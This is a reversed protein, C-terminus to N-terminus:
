GPEKTSWNATIDESSNFKWSCGKFLLAVDEYINRFVLIKHQSKSQFIRKCRELWIHWVTCALAIRALQYVDDNPKFKAKILNAEEHLNGMSSSHMQLKLKCLTWLYHSYPCDFFLHDRTECGSGCLACSTSDIIGFRMLRSKTPLRDLIGKLLCCAMKPSPSHLWVIDFLEFAEHPDRISNWADKLSFIGTPNVTWKWQDDNGLIAINSIYEWVTTLSPILPCWQSNSILNSVKWSSTNTLIHAERGVLEILRGIM